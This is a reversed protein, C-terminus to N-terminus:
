EGKINLILRTFINAKWIDRERSGLEQNTTTASTMTNVFPESGRRELFGSEMMRGM